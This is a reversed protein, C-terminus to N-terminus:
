SPDPPSVFLRADVALAGEAYVFLPNVEVEVVSPHAILCNSVAAAAVVAAFDGKPRGRAGDLLPFIRLDTLMESIDGETIPLVRHTVDKVIKEADATQSEAEIRRYMPLSVANLREPRNLTLVLVSGERSSLLPEEAVGATDPRDESM